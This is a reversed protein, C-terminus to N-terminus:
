GSSGLKWGQGIGQYIALENISHTPANVGQAAKARGAGLTSIRAKCVPLVEQLNKWTATLPSWSNEGGSTALPSHNNTNPGRSRKRAKRNAQQNTKMAHASVCKQGPSTCKSEVSGTIQTFRGGWNTCSHDKESVQINLSLSRAKSSFRGCELLFFDLRSRYRRHSARAMQHQRSALSCRLSAASLAYISMGLM